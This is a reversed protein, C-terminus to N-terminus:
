VSHRSLWTSVETNSIKISSHWRCDEKLQQHYCRKNWYTFNLDWTKKKIIPQIFQSTNRIRTESFILFRLSIITWVWGNKVSATWLQTELSLWLVLHGIALKVLVLKTNMLMKKYVNCNDPNNSLMANNRPSTIDLKHLQEKHKEQRATKLQTEISRHMPIKSCSSSEDICVSCDKFWMNQFFSTNSIDKINWANEDINNDKQTNYIFLNQIIENKSINEKKWFNM